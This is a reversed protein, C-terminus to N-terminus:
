VHTVGEPKADIEGARTQMLPDRAPQVPQLLYGSIATGVIGVLAIWHRWPEGVMEAQGIVATCIFAVLGAWYAIQSKSWM